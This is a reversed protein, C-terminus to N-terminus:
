KKKINLKNEFKILMEEFNAMAAGFDYKVVRFLDTTYTSGEKDICLRVKWPNKAKGKVFSIVRAPVLEWGRGARGVKVWIM